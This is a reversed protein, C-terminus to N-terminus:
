FGNIPDYTISIHKELETWSINITVEGNYQGQLMVWFIVTVSQFGDVPDDPFPENSFFLQSNECSPPPIIWFNQM